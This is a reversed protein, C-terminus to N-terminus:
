RLVSFICSPPAASNSSPFSSSSCSVTFPTLTGSASRERLAPGAPTHLHHHCQPIHWATGAWPAPQQLCAGPQMKWAMKRWPLPKTHKWTRLKIVFSIHLTNKQNVVLTGNSTHYLLPAAVLGHQGDRFPTFSNFYLSDDLINQSNKGEKM